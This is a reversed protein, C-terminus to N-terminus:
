ASKPPFSALCGTWFHALHRSFLPLLRNLNEEAPLPESSMNAWLATFTQGFPNQRDQIDETFWRRYERYRQNILNNLEQFRDQVEGMDQAKQHKFIFETFMHAIMDEHFQDLAPRGEELGMHNVFAETVLFMAFMVLELIRIPQHGLGQERLLRGLDGVIGLTLNKMLDSVQQTAIQPHEGTTEM